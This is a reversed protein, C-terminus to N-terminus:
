LINEWSENQVFVHLCGCLMYVHIDIRNNVVSHQLSWMKDARVSSKEALLDMQTCVTDGM